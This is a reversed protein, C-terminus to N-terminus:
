EGKYHLALWITEEVTTTWEVRHKTKAPIVTYDGPMMELINNHKEFLLGARGKLLLVWESREQALWEGKPTAHGMSVIRELLFHQNQLLDKFNEERGSLPFNIFLNEVRTM